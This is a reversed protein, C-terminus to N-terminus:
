RASCAIRKADLACTAFVTGTPEHMRMTWGRGAAPTAMVYGFRIDMWSSTPASYSVGTFAPGRAPIPASGPELLTGGNGIVLQGPLGPINVAQALHIHSSLLMQFGDLLGVSAVAEDGTIWGGDPSCDDSPQWGAIPRHVLLWAERDGVLQQAREYRTRQLPVLETPECDDDGASDVVVLRLTRADSVRVDAAYTPDLNNQPVSLTGDPTTFPACTGETGERPDMYIYYGNGGRSCEEHNGRVVVIPASPFLPSMPTFVDAAWSYATDKFPMGAIPPPSGGCLAAEADPCAAERYFFDGTFVILDPREKAISTAVRALPWASPDSCDQFTSGKMRCGTDGLIAMRDVSRPMAAPISATGISARIAGAPIDATCSTLSSFAAGTTPPAARKTMPVSQQSGDAKVVRLRPCGVGMPMVARAVLGSPSAGVPAVLAYAAVPDAVAAHATAANAVPLLALATVTLLLRRMPPM